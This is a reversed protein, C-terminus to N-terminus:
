SAPSSYMHRYKLISTFTYRTLARTHAEIAPFGGLRQILSFGHRLAAIGLFHATGDEFGAPGERRRCVLLWSLRLKDSYSFCGFTSCCEVAWRVFSTDASCAAVTGGGFYPKRLLSRAEKRVLLAGLGTPYGFIKYYSLVVFDPKHRSLDPPCTSCAKAADLLVWWRGRSAPLEDVGAARGQQICDGVAADYRAGSFNSELPYAFMNHVAAQGAQQEGAAPERMCDSCPEM